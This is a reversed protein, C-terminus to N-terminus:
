PGPHRYGQRIAWSEAVVMRVRGPVAVIEVPLLGAPDGDLQYPVGDASEVSLRRTRLLTCDSWGLHKGRLIGVLYRIGGWFTGYELACVDLLGDTPAAGPAIKLDLAYKPINVVFLWRATLSERGREDRGREDRGIPSQPEGTGAPEWSVRLAPYKYSRISDIIPKVYSLHRIHGRRRVHLRRVVDADFGCGAMLLFLRDGARGADLAVTAGQAIRQSLSMPDASQELYRAVLNETGLPLVALPTDPPTRNVAASVTGDGGAAVVARVGTSGPDGVASGLTALDHIAEVDFGCAALRGTLAEVLAAGSRSGATPNQVILVKRATNPVYRILRSM